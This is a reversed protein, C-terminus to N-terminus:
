ATFLGASKITSVVAESDWANQEKVSELYAKMEKMMDSHDHFKQKPQKGPYAEYPIASHKQMMRTVANAESGHNFYIDGRKQVYAKTREVYDMYVFYMESLQVKKGTLRYIESELFSTAAYAWCTGTRGQSEPKNHWYETYAERSDALGEEVQMRFKKSPKQQTDERAAPLIEKEYFGKEPETYKASDKNHQGLAFAPISFLIIATFLTQKLM